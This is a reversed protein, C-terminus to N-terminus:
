TAFAELNAFGAQNLDTLFKHNVLLGRGVLPYFWVNPVWITLGSLPIADPRGPLAPVSTAAKGMWITTSDTVVIGGSNGGSGVSNTSKRYTSKRRARSGPLLGNYVHTNLIIYRTCLLSIRNLKRFYCTRM